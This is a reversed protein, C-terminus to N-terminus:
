RWRAFWDLTRTLALDRAAANFDHSGARCFGHGADYLYLPSQPAALRVKEVNEVPISADAAGYHLMVPAKPTNDTLDAILRGYFCTAASVGECQAAAMWAATGGYCFGTVYVPKPLTDIAAQIDSIVQPWPTAVVADRAKELGPTDMSAQFDNEIRDFLGPAMAAYGAGAFLACMEDIHETLGFVEQLVVVSGTTASKPQKTLANLAYGDIRSTITTRECQM